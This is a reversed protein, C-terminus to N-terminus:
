RESLLTIKWLKRENDDHLKYSLNKLLLFVLIPLYRTESQNSPNLKMIEAIKMM